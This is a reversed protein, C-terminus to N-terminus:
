RYPWGARQFGWLGRLSSLANFFHKTFMKLSLALRRTSLGRAGSPPIFFNFTLFTRGYMIKGWLLSVTM